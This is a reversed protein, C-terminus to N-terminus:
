RLTYIFTIHIYNHLVINVHLSYWDPESADSADVLLKCRRGHGQPSSSTSYSGYAVNFNAIGYLVQVCVRAREFIVKCSTM